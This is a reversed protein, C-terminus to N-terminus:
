GLVEAYVDLIREACREWRYRGAWIRRRDREAAVNRQEVMRDICMAAHLPDDPDAYFGVDGITERLVPIDSVVVPTGFSLAELPTFGFGEHRALHIVGVCEQYLKALEFDPVEGLCVIRSDAISAYHSGSGFAKGVLLLKCGLRCAASNRFAEIAVEVGKHARAQGVYLLFPETGSGDSSNWSATDDAGQLHDVGYPIVRIPADVPVCERLEVAVSETPVIIASATTLTHLLMRAYFEEHLSLPRSRAGRPWETGTRLCRVAHEMQYFRDSGFLMEFVQDEYCLSPDVIRMVDHVMAVMPVDAQPFPSRYDFLHVLDAKGTVACDALYAGEDLSYRPPGETTLVCLEYQSSKRNIRDLADVLRGTLRGIGDVGRSQGDLLIRSLHGGWSCKAFRYADVSRELEALATISGKWGLPGILLNEM